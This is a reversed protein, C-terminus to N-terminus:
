YTHMPTYLAKILVVCGASGNCLASYLVEGCCNLLPLVHIHCPTALKEAPQVSYRAKVNQLNWVHAPHVAGVQVGRAVPGTLCEPHSVFMCPPRGPLPWYFGATMGGHLKNCGFVQKAYRRDARKFPCFFVAISFDAAFLLYLRLCRCAM